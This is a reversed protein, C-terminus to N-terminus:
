CAVVRVRSVKICRYNCVPSLYGSRAGSIVRDPTNLTSLVPLVSPAGLGDSSNLAGPASFASPTNDNSDLPSRPSPTSSSSNLVNAADSAHLTSPTGFNNNNACRPRFHKLPGLFRLSM